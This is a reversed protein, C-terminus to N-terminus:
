AEIVEKNESEIYTGERGRDQAQERKQVVSKRLEWGNTWGFWQYRLCHPGRALLVLVTLEDVWTLTSGEDDLDLFIRIVSVDIRDIRPFGGRFRPLRLNSPDSTSLGSRDHVGGARQFHLSM